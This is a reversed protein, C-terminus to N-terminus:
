AGPFGHTQPNQPLAALLKALLETTPAGLDVTDPQDGNLGTWDGPTLLLKAGPLLRPLKSQLVQGPLTRSAAADVLVLEYRLPREIMELADRPTKAHHLMLGGELLAPSLKQFIEADEHVLLVTGVVDPLEARFVLAEQEGPPPFSIRVQTGSGDISDISLQGKAQEVIGRVVSLGLGRAGNGRKTTFFPELVRQRIAAPIGTGTDSVEVYRWGNEDIGTNIAIDGGKELADRANFLVHLLALEIESVDVIADIVRSDPHCAFRIGSPLIVSFAQEVAAVCLNLNVVRPRIARSAAFAQLSTATDFARDLSRRLGDIQRRQVPTSYRSGIAALLQNADTLDQKFAAATQVCLRSLAGSVEEQREKEALRIRDSLDQMAGLFLVPEGHERLIEGTLRIWRPGKEGSRLQVDTDLKTDQRALDVLADSLPAASTETFLVLFENLNFAGSQIGLLTQAAPSLSCRRDRMDMEWGAVGSLTAVQELRARSAELDRLVSEREMEARQLKVDAAHLGYVARLLVVGGIVVPIGASMLLVNDGLLFFDRLVLATLTCVPLTTTLVLFSRDRFGRLVGMLPITLLLGTAFSRSFVNPAHWLPVALGTYFCVTAFVLALYATRYRLDGAALKARTYNIALDQLLLYLLILPIYPLGALNLLMGASLLKLGIYIWTSSISRSNRVLSNNQLEQQQLVSSMSLIGRM